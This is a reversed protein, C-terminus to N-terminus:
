AWRLAARNQAVIPLLLHQSLHSVVPVAVGDGMLHYAENYNTPLQYSDPLGMLRAAERPSLLRTQIESHNVVVITQRSSGGGPTRLCGAIGDFRVEARQVGNRTRKYITGVRLGGAQQAALVKRRHLPSMMQLLRQTESASHWAIGDPNTEILTELTRLPTSNVPVTWWRWAAKLNLGLRNYAKIMAAPHWAPHPTSTYAHTPLALNTDVGVIFLRPRSQPLFFVADIMLAGVWYGQKAVADVILEFDRGDHSTLAGYVNELVVLKPKRGGADLSSILKWFGWFASSREGEM